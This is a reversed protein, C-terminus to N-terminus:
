GNYATNEAKLLTEILDAVGEERCSALRPFGREKLCASANKVIYPHGVAELMPLDNESDGVAILEDCDLNLKEALAHVGTAKTQRVDHIELLYSSTRILNLGQAELPLTGRLRQETKRDTEPIFMLIKIVAASDIKDTLVVKPDKLFELHDIQDQPMPQTILIDDLTYVYFPIGMAKLQRMCQASREGVAALVESTRNEINFLVGGNCALHYGQRLGLTRNLEDFACANKGSAFVLRHGTGIWEKLMRESRPRLTKMAEILTNDIDLILTQEM